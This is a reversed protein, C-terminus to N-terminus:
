HLSGKSKLIQGICNKSLQETDDSSFDSSEDSDSSDYCGMGPLIAYQILDTFEHDVQGTKSEEKQNIQEKSTADDELKQEKANAEDSTTTGKESGEQVKRKRNDTNTGSKLQEKETNM